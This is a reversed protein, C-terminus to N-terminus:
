IDKLHQISSSLPLSLFLSPFTRLTRQGVFDHASVRWSSCQAHYEFLVFGGRRTHVHTGGERGCLMVRMTRQVNRAYRPTFLSFTIYIYVYIYMFPFVGLRIALNELYNFRTRRSRTQIFYYDTQSRSLGLPALFWNIKLANETALARLRTRASM